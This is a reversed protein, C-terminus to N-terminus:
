HGDPTVDLALDPRATDLKSLLNCQELLLVTIPVNLRPSGLSTLSCRNDILQIYSLFRNLLNSSLYLPVLITYHGSAHLFLKAFKFIHCAESIKLFNLFKVCLSHIDPAM